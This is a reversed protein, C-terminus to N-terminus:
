TDPSIPLDQSLTREEELTKLVLKEISEFSLPERWKYGRIVLLLDIDSNPKYDGGLLLDSFPL